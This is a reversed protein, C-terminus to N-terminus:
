PHAWTLFGGEVRLLINTYENGSSDWGSPLRFFDELIYKRYTLRAKKALGVTEPATIWAVFQKIYSTSYIQIVIVVKYKAVPKM